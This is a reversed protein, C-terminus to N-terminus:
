VTEHLEEIEIWANISDSVSGTVRLTSKGVPAYIFNDLTFDSNQYHNQVFENQSTYEAIELENDKSNIVLKNGDPITASVSGSQVTQNNVVLYWTPNTIEGMITIITPSAESSNNDIAIIGTISDAYAYDYSYSYRKSNASEEGTRQARRPIYWKSTGQFDINCKLRRDTHDFEAKSLNSVICDLYVWESQPKYLLKLPTFNIFDAFQRYLAYTKFVMIGAPAKQASETDILTYANGIQMYQADMRFGLGDPSYFFADRNMLDWEAGTANILKFQRVTM